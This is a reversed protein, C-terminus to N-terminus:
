QKIFLRIEDNVVDIYPVYGSKAFNTLYKVFDDNLKEEEKTYNFNKNRFIFWTEDGHQAGTLWKRRSSIVPFSPKHSFLFHYTKKHNPNGLQRLGIRHERLTKVAPSAYFMDGYMDLTSHGQAEISSNQLYRQCIKNVIASDSGVYDRVVDKIVGDCMANVPVGDDLNFHYAQQMKDLKSKLLWGDEDNTGAMVDVGVFTRFGDSDKNDIISEPFGKLFDNDVVPGPRMIFDYNHYSTRMKGTAAMIEHPSKSRLCQLIFSSNPFESSNEVNNYGNYCGANQAVRFAADKADQTVARRNLGLGSMAIARQFLGYSHKSLLHLGISYGGASHGFLTVSSPDGGFDGINKNVWKLAELQDWLGYNGPSQEDETSLFGFMGLRYNVTIVIVGGLASMRAGDHLNASKTYYGGGHVYVMVSFNNGKEDSAPVYINMYLCDESIDMNPLFKRYSNSIKQICSPGHQTANLTHKWALIPAPKSFRLAGVPPQAYPVRLFQYVRFGEDARLSGQIRGHLTEVIANEFVIGNAVSFLIWLLFVM